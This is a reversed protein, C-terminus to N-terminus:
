NELNELWEKFFREQERKALDNLDPMAQGFFRAQQEPPRRGLTLEVVMLEGDRIVGFKAPTGPQLARITNQFSELADQAALNKGNVSAIMDGVRLGAERAPTDRLVRTIVIVERAENGEGPVEARIANMQIGIFGEGAKLYEDMALAHLVNHSRQRIEPDPANRAQDLAQRARVGPDQRCWELLAKQAEERIKFEDSKLDLLLPDPILPSDPADDAACLGVM